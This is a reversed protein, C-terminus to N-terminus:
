LNRTRENLAAVDKELAGIQKEHADIRKDQAARDKAQELRCDKRADSTAEAHEKIALRIQEGVPPIPRTMKWINVANAILALLVAAGALLQVAYSWQVPLREAGGALTTAAVPAATLILNSVGSSM